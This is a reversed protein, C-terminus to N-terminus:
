ESPLSAQPLRVTTTSPGISGAIHSLAQVPRLARRVALIAIGLALLMFLPIVWAIDFVFEELMSHVLARSGRARGAWISVPRRARRLTLRPGDYDQASGPLGRLQFYGAHETAVPWREVLAGFEAPSASIVRGDASRVAFIDADPRSGYADRLVPPLELR